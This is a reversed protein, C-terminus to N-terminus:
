VLCEDPVFSLFMTSLLADFAPKHLCDLLVFELELREADVVAIHFDDDGHFYALPTRTTM